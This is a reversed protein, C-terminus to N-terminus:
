HRHVLLRHWRRRRQHSRRDSAQLCGVLAPDEKQGRSVIHLTGDSLPRQLKLAEDAPATMWTEVENPTTLIVPMAKPHIASVDANTETTLFAYERLRMRAHTDGAHLVGGLPEFRFEGPAM